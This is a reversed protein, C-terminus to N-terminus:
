DNVIFKTMEIDNNGYLDEWYPELEVLLGKEENTPIFGIGNLYEKVADVRKPLVDVFITNGDMNRFDIIMNPNERANNTLHLWSLAYGHLANEGNYCLGNEEHKYEASIEIYEKRTEVFRTKDRM